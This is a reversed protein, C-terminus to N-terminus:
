EKKFQWFFFDFFRKMTQFQIGESSLSSISFPLFDKQQRLQFWCHDISCQNNFYNAVLKETSWNIKAATAFKNGHTPVFCCCFFDTSKLSLFSKLTSMKQLPLGRVRTHTHTLTQQYPTAAAKPPDDCWSSCCFLLSPSLATEAYATKM